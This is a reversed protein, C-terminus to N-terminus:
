SRRAAAATMALAVLGNAAAWGRDLLGAGPVFAIDFPAVLAMGFLVAAVGAMAGVVLGSSVRGRAHGAFAYLALAPAASLAVAGVWHSAALLPSGSVPLLAAVPLHLSAAVAAFAGIGGALGISALTAAAVSLDRRRAGATALALALLGPGFLSWAGHTSRLATAVAGEASVLGAGYRDRAYSPVDRTASREITREVQAPATVGVSHVLAALGAVHPSAMSTGMYLAFEHSSPDSRRITEQLVGDPRGDNNQDVRTNGGPAAVDVAIGYNSYFTVTRDFQTASVGVVGPYGAPFSPVSSGSNGAAAIVTVGKSRAYRVADLMVRSPLPGGLSMNIVNAGHDAAWRISDAIDAVRGRGQADLVRLPMISAGPAVGAVGYANNTSQAITGAVHTGHGHEDDPTDDRGVFDWGPVFSTLALDPTQVFPTGPATRYAVGTDIVAVVTGDGRTTRWAPEVGIQALHWQFDYLPDNPRVGVRGRAPEADAVDDFAVADSDLSVVMDPEIAEVRADASLRAVWHAANQDDFEVLYVGEADSFPSNLREAGPIEDLLRTREADGLHDAVDVVWTGATPAVSFALEPAVDRGPLLLPLSFAIGAGLLATAAVISTRLATETFPANAM